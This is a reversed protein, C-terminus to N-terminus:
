GGGCTLRGVVCTLRGVVCTLRGVVVEVVLCFRIILAMIDTM